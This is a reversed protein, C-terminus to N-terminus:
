PPHEAADRGHARRARGPDQDPRTMVWRRPTPIDLAKLVATLADLLEHASHQGQDDGPARPTAASLSKKIV